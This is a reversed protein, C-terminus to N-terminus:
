KTKEFYTKLSYIIIDGDVVLCIPIIKIECKELITAHKHQNLIFYINLFDEEDKKKFIKFMEQNYQRHFLFSPQIGAYSMSEVNGVRYKVYRKNAKNEHNLEIDQVCLCALERYHSNMFSIEFSEVLLIAINKMELLLEDKKIESIHSIIPEQIM